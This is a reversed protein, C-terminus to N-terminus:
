ERKVPGVPWQASPWAAAQYAIFQYFLSKSFCSQIIIECENNNMGAVVMADRDGDVEFYITKGNSQEEAIPSPIEM